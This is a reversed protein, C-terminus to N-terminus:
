SKRSSLVNSIEPTMLLSLYSYRPSGTNIRNIGSGVKEILGIRYFIDFLLPNRSFSIKGLKNKDFLLEGKNTIEIRNDFIEIFVGFGKEFYDRHVIANILAERLVEEPLELKEKRAGTGKIIYKLKLHQKLFNIGDEYNTLLDKKFEKRDIIDLRENTKYLVCTIYNQKIFKEPNKAFLM